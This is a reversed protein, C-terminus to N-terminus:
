CKGLQRGTQPAEKTERRNRRPLDLGPRSFFGRRGAIRRCDGTIRRRKPPATAPVLGRLTLIIVKARTIKRKYEVIM